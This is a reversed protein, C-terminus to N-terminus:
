VIICGVLVELLPLSNAPLIGRGTCALGLRYLFVVDNTLPLLTNNTIAFVLPLAFLFFPLPPVLRIIIM